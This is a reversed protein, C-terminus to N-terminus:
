TCENRTVTKLEFKKLIIIKLVNHYDQLKERRSELNQVLHKQFEVYVDQHDGASELLNM